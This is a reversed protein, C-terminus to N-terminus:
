ERWSHVTYRGELWHVAAVLEPVEAWNERIEDWSQGCALGLGFANYWNEYWNDEHVPANFATALKEDIEQFTEVLGSAKNTLDFCVPM